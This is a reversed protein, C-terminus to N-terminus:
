VLSGFGIERYTEGCFSIAKDCSRGALSRGVRM